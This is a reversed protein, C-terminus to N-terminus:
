SYESTMCGAKLVVFDQGEAIRVQRYVECNLCTARNEAETGSVKGGCLTGVVAWCIRSANHGRNLRDSTVDTAARCLDLEAIKHGEPGRGCQIIEWCNRPNQHM